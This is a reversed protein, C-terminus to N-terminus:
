YSTITVFPLDEAAGIKEQHISMDAAVQPAANRTCRGQSVVITALIAMLIFLVIIVTWIKQINSSSKSTITPYPIGTRAVTNRPSYARNMSLHRPIDHPDTYLVRISSVRDLLGISDLDGIDAPGVIAIADMSVNFDTGNYLIAIANSSVRISRLRNDPFKVEESALRAANYDGRELISFKGGFQYESYLIVRGTHPIGSNYTKFSLVQIASIKNNMGIEALNPIDYPGMIVRSGSSATPSQSAYITVITNLDVRLSSIANDLDEGSGYASQNYYGVLDRGSFFGSRIRAFPGQYNIDRYVTLSMICLPYPITFM